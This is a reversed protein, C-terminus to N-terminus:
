QGLAALHQRLFGACPDVQAESLGHLVVAGQFGAGALLSLYRAYDLRGQGAPLDGAAGDHDLDKAHALVIDAGLLAFAEELIASMRPLEGAHFLNAGDICVKLRPSGMEAMLRRARAASDIVNSVEPELALTVGYAEADPLVGALSQVLDRWAEASGNDPHPHWMSHPDRTGTCLTIVPVGLRPCAAILTRLRRAGDERRALDPDIMNYTGSISALGVGATACAQRVLDCVVPPVETPLAKLGPVLDLTFQTAHIGHGAIAALTAELSPRRCVHADLAIQM